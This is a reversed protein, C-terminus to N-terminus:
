KVGLFNVRVQTGLDPFRLWYGALAAPVVQVRPNEVEPTYYGENAAVQWRQGNALTFVQKPKWGGFAGVISSEAVIDERGPSTPKLREKARAFLGPTERTPATAAPVPGSSPLEPRASPRSVPLRLGRRYEEVLTELRALQAPTLQNLGTAAMEEQPLTAIFKGGDASAGRTAAFLVLVLLLRSNM